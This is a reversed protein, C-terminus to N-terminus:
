RRGRGKRFKLVDDIEVIKISHVLLMLKRKIVYDKTRTPQSKVDIHEVRGDPYKVVFDAKYTCAHEIHEGDIKQVPILVFKVQTEFSIIEKAMKLLKLYNYYDGEKVSDFIINDITVKRNRYKSYPKM